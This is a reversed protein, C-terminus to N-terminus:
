SIEQGNNIRTFKFPSAMMKPHGRLFAFRKGEIFEAPALKGHFEKLKPKPDFLDLQSPAGVMHLFIVSKAKPAFHAIEKGYDAVPDPASERSLLDNFALTGVGLSSSNRLFARRSLLRQTLDKEM